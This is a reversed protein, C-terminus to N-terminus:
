PYVVQIYNVTERNSIVDCLGTGSAWIPYGMSQAHLLQNIIARGGPQTLSIAFQITTNCAPTGTTSDLNQSLTFFAYTNDFIIITKLTGNVLGGALASSTWCAGLLISLVLARKVVGGKAFM